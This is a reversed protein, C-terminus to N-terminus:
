VLRGRELTVARERQEWNELDRKGERDCLHLVNVKLNDCFWRAERSFLVDTLVVTRFAMCLQSRGGLGHHLSLSPLLLM